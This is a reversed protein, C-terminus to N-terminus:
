PKDEKTVIITREECSWNDHTVDMSDSRCAPCKECVRSELTWLKTRSYFFRYENLARLLAQKMGGRTVIEYVWVIYIDSAGRGLGTSALEKARSLAESKSTVWAEQPGDDDHWTISYLKM